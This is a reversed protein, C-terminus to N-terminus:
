LIKKLENDLEDFSLSPENYKEKTYNGEGSEFQQFFRTFAIPGMTNALIDMGASRIQAPNNMNVNILM